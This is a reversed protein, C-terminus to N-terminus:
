PRAPSRLSPRVSPPDLVRGGASAEVLAFAPAPWRQHHFRSRVAQVVEAVLAHPLLAIASGGFGGGTMRAGLAGHELSTEVVADLEPCSVEFDDRLSEHSGTMAVGFSEHDGAELALLADGVRSMETLVHRARRRVVPDAIRSLAAPVDEVERLSTVGLITAAQECSSRRAEYGGDVLAHIVRTDVVLLRLGASEPSWPVQQTSGDVCDILLAHGREALLSVTQDMGGTAVGAVEAEARMCASVLRDARFDRDADVGLAACVALAVSCELAASSSLGAGIPVRGDVLVDLGPVDLGDERLTWVVGSVYSSWHQAAGPGLDRSAGTWVDERQLSAVTVVDDTRLRVAAYTAHPLAVPLCRGANYDVHEGILNVRGPAGAVADPTCQHRGVFATALGEAIDAPDGPDLFSM